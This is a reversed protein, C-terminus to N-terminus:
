IKEWQTAFCCHQKKSTTQALGASKILGLKKARLPVGGFSRNSPPESLGRITASMRFDEILFRYGSPWGKLWEHFMQDAKENWGPEVAEAHDMATKIGSDRLREAEQKDFTITLQNM